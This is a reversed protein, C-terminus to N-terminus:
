IKEPNVTILPVRDRPLDVADWSHPSREQMYRRFYETDIFKAGFKRGKINVTTSFYSYYDESLIAYCYAIWGEAGYEKAEREINDLRELKIHTEWPFGEAGNRGYYPLNRGSMDVYIKRNDKYIIFKGTRLIELQYGVKNIIEVLARHYLSRGIRTM